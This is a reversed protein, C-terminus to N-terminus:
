APPEGEQASALKERAESLKQEIVQLADAAALDTEIFGGTDLLIKTPFHPVDRLAAIRRPDVWTGPEVEVMVLRLADETSGARALADMFGEPNQVFATVESLMDEPVQVTVMGSQQPEPYGWHAM